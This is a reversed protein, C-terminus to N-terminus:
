DKLVPIAYTVSKTLPSAALVATSGDKQTWGTPLAGFHYGRPIHLTVSNTQPVVLDQPDMALEYTLDGNSSVSAASPVRYTVQLRHTSDPAMMWGTQLLPRNYVGTVEPSRLQKHPNPQGDVTVVHLQTGQPLFVGVLSGLWRTLYGFKPDTIPQTYSPAPNSAEVTVSDVAAGDAGLQVTSTV